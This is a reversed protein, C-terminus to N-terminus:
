FLYPLLRYKVRLMYERYELQKSLFKEELIARYIYAFSSLIFILVTFLNVHSVVYGIRLLIDTVYMPHRVISYLGTTKIERFAILIGFSKGLNFLTIIGLVNAIFIIIKSILVQEASGSIPQGIFAVGSFFATIAIIQNFINNNFSIYNKRILFLTVLVLNQLAFSAELYDLRGEEWIKYTQHM